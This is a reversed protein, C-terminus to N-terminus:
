DKSNQIEKIAYAAVPQNIKKLTSIARKDGIHGLVEIVEGIYEGEGESTINNDILPQLNSILIPVIKTGRLIRYGYQTGIDNLVKSAQNTKLQAAWIDIKGQLNAESLVEKSLSLTSSSCILFIAFIVRLHIKM